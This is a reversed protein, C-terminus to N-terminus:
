LFWNLFCVATEILWGQLAFLLGSVTLGPHSPSSEYSVAERIKTGVEVKLGVPSLWIICGTGTM